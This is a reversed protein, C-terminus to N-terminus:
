QIYHKSNKGLAQVFYILDLLLRICLLPMLYVRAKLPALQLILFIACKVFVVLEKSQLLLALSALSLSFLCLLLYFIILLLRLRISAQKFIFALLTFRGLIFHVSLSLTAADLQHRCVVM